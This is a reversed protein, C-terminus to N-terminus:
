LMLAAPGTAGDFNAKVGAVDIRAPTDEETVRMALGPSSTM